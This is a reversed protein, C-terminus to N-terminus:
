ARGSATTCNDAIVDDFGLGRGHRSQTAPCHGMRATLLLAPTLGLEELLSELWARGLELKVNKKPAQCARRVNKPARLFRRFYRNRLRESFNHAPFSRRIMAKTMM